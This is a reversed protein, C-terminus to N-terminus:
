ATAEAACIHSAAPLRNGAWRHGSIRRTMGAIICRAADGRESTVAAVLAPQQASKAGEPCLSSM